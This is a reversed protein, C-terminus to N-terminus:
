WRTVKVFSTTLLLDYKNEVSSLSGIFLTEIDEFLIPNFDQKVREKLAFGTANDIGVILIESAVLFFQYYNIIQM